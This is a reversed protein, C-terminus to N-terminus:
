GRAALAAKVEAVVSTWDDPTTQRFLRLSPYWLSTEGKPGWRWDCAVASLLLWCPKGLAGALHAVSTDVSIVLDLGAIIGATDWFDRAGTEEPALSVTGPLAALAAAAEPPLSRHRDAGHQPNGRTVLGVTLGPIANPKPPALYPAPPPEAMRQMFVVPLRSSPAVYDAGVIEVRGGTAIARMGLGEQVLRLMAPDCVWGVQAGAAQLLRAFRAFMIQDGFGEEGWIVVNKGAVDEGSWQPIEIEPAPKVSGDAVRRWADFYPFGEALRGQALIVLGLSARARMHGPDLALAQRFVAEAEGYDGRIQRLTALNHLRTATPALAAAARYRAEAEALRGERHLAEGEEALARARDESTEM